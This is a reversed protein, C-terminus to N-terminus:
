KSAEAQTLYFHVGGRCEVRWDPNWRLRVPEGPRYIAGTDHLVVAKDTADIELVVADIEATFQLAGTRRNFIDIKM